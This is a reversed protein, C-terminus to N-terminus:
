SKIALRFQHPSITYISKFSRIFHADDYFGYRHTIDSIPLATNLLLSFANTLKLNLQYAGITIGTAQKFARALYVPHVFVKKSLSELSHFCEIEDEVIEIVKKVLSKFRGVDTINNIQFLWESIFELAM